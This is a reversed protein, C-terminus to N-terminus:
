GFYQGHFGFPIHHPVEARAQEAFSQGDLLLLFSRGRGGHLVVSLIVGEDEATAGPAPVFVPEGPYCDDEYWTSTRGAELDFKVLQNLFDPAANRRYGSGYAYRYPRANYRGYNIRPLECAEESMVEYSASTKDPRLRYRRFEAFPLDGGEPGRLQELYLQGILSPDDYACIDVVIEDDVEFANVHHFAFFPEAAIEAALSGDEKDIVLFRAGREPKWEFNEIFPKGSVLMRLPNVVLPFEAVIVYRESMGFSHIYGPEEVAISGAIQRALPTEDPIVCVNYSSTRGYRIFHNVGAKRERDYHPHATTSQFGADDAYGVVGATELTEADFAVPLPSETMALTRDALRALNVNANHSTQTSFLSSVRQFLSRCPDTAFESFAIKGEQEAAEYGPSRLYRNAYGVRGGAFSFRHLMALGDFWHRYAQEGVEFRAPGNRLLTGSLWDPLRGQVPLDDISIEDALTTFGKRFSNSM